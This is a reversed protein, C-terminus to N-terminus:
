LWLVVELSELVGGEGIYKCGFSELTGLFILNKKLEPVCRVNRLTRVIGDHMKIRVTSTGVIKCAVNNGVLVVGGEVPDYISFLDKSPCMHFSCASDLIWKNNSCSINETVLFIAGEIEDAAVSAEATDSDGHENKKVKGKNQLKPCNFKIHGKKHYYYCVPNSFRSKENSKSRVFLSFAQNGSGEGTIDRDIQDKSKLMSKIKRYSINEKGYLITDRFNKFSHPLSCILLIAHDEEEVKVDINSLDMLISDFADLHSLLSTNEDMRITYLKQKLYLRNEATRKMYLSKLNEWIGKATIESAVERLVDNSLNLIISSRAKKDLSDFEEDTMKESIKEKGQLGMDSGDQVLIAEKKLDNSTRSKALFLKFPAIGRDKPLMLSSRLTKSICHLLREPFRWVPKANPFPSLIRLRLSANGIHNPVRGSKCTKLKLDLLNCPGMVVEPILFKNGRSRINSREELAKVDSNGVLKKRCKFAM